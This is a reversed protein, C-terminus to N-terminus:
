RMAILSGEDTYFYITSGAVVPSIMVGEGVNITDITRGTQPSVSRVAGESSVLILRGGALVPGSWYADTGLKQVWAAGGTKRSLAMLEGNESMVFVYAGAVWPTQTGAIDQTWLRKGSKLDIAAMRGSHSIAYVAGKHVVPRGAIDKINSLSSLAGSKALSDSWVPNGDKSGFAVLEGSTYPVVVKGEAVAPSTSSLLAASEAIGQFKWIVAGNTQALSYVENNVTTVYVRGGSATPAARIPVGLSKTWIAKGSGPDLAVVRGFGIAAYIRGSESALGGGYGEDSEENEPTLEARWLVKGSKVDLARVTAETDLTFIRNGVVIPSATLRGYSSSGNGANSEWLRTLKRGLAVHQLANSPTGGPQSWNANTNAAPIVVPQRVAKPDVSVAQKSTVVAIRKGPLIAEEESGFLGSCGALFVAMATLTAIRSIGSRKENDRSQPM